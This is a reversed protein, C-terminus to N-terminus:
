NLTGEESFARTTKNAPPTKSADNENTNNNNMSLYALTTPFLGGLNNQDLYEQITLNSPSTACVKLHVSNPSLRHLVDNIHKILISIMASTITSSTGQTSTQKELLIELKCCLSLLAAARRSSDLGWQISENIKVPDTFNTLWFDVDLEMLHFKGKLSDVFESRRRLPPSRLVVTYSSTSEM